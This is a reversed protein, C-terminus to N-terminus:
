EERMNTIKISKDISAGAEEILRDIESTGNLEMEGYLTDNASLMSALVKTYPFKMDASASIMGETINKASPFHEDRWTIWEESEAAENTYPLYGRYTCWFLQAEPSALFKILEYAGQMEAEDGSNAIFLGTGEVLVDGKFEANEDVGVHPVFAWEFNLDMNDILYYYSNTCTWFISQNNVFKTRGGGFGTKELCGGDYMGKYLTLLKKLSANTEGETYLSKSVKGDFGNDADVIDVGQYTLMDLIDNGDGALYAKDCVGKDHAAQSIEAIKEFSTVDDLTYGAKKLLDVNVFYGKASVGMVGAIQDGNLDTYSKKVVDIMDDTWKDEDEDLYKQIPVVYEATSYEYLANNTGMFVSPYDEKQLTVMKQRIQTVSGGSDVTVHYEDSSANFMDILEQFKVVAAETYICWITLETKEGSNGSNASEGETGGTNGGGCGTLGTCVLALAMLVALIRKKM